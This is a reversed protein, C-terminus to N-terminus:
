GFLDKKANAQDRQAQEREAKQALLRKYKAILLKRRLSERTQRYMELNRKTHGELMARLEKIFKREFKTIVDAKPRETTMVEAIDPETKIPKPEAAKAKFAKEVAHNNWRRKALQEPTEKPHDLDDM